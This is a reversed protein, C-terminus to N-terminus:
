PKWKIVREAGTTVRFTEHTKTEVIRGTSTQPYSEKLGEKNLRVVALMRENNNVVKYFCKYHDYDDGLTYGHGTYYTIAEQLTEFFRETNTELTKGYGASLSKTEFSVYNM